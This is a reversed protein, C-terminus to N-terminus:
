YNTLDLKFTEKKDSDYMYKNRARDLHFFDKFTQNEEIMRINILYLFYEDWMNRKKSDNGDDADDPLSPLYDNEFNQRIIKDFEELEKYNKSLKIVTRINSIRPSISEVEELNILYNRELKGNVTLSRKSTQTRSVTNTIVLSKVGVFIIRVNNFNIDSVVRRKTKFSPSWCENQKIIGWKGQKEDVVIVNNEKIKHFEVPSYAEILNEANIEDETFSYNLDNEKSDCPMRREIDFEIFNFLHEDFCSKDNLIEKMYRELGKRREELFVNNMDRFIETKKPVYNKFISTNRKMNDTLIKDFEKVDSCSKKITWTAQNTLCKLQFIFLYHNQDKAKEWGSCSVEFNVMKHININLLSIPMISDDLERYEANNESNRRLSPSMATISDVRRNNTLKVSRKPVISNFYETFPKRDIFTTIKLFDLFRPHIFAPEALLGNLFDEIDKSNNNTTRFEPFQEVFDPFDKANYISSIFNYFELIEDIKRRCVFIKNNLKTTINYSPNLAELASDGENGASEVTIQRTEPIMNQIGNAPQSNVSSSHGNSSSTHSIRPTKKPKIELLPISEPLKNLDYRFIKQMCRLDEFKFLLTQICNQKEEKLEASTMNENTENALPDIRDNPKACVYLSLLLSTSM